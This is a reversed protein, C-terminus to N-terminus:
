SAWRTIREIIGRKSEAEFREIFVDRIAARAGKITSYKYIHAGGTPANRYRNAIAFWEAKGLRKDEDLADLALQFAHQDTGADLLRLAHTAVREQDIGVNMGEPPSQDGLLMRTEAVFDDVTKSESGELLRRVRRLDEAQSAAGAAGYLEELRNLVDKFEAVKM